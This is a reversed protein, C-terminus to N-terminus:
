QLYNLLNPSLIRTVAAVTYEQLNTLKQLRVVAQTIDAATTDNYEIQEALALDETRVQLRDLQELSVSQVGVVDLIHDYVRQLDGIRRDLAASQQDSSLNRTNLIDARLEKIVAFADSTGLFELQDTGTRILATTDLFVNSGDLSDILEQNPDFSVPVSTIGGDISLNGTATIDVSGSFGATIATTNVHIKEGLPGIVILDTDASTFNVESGGNLSITGFAGTGSTDTIQVTHTGTAGIVTDSGASSIGAAIGSGPGYTTLQHSVVLQRQGSATPIGTGAITGTHGVVVTEARNRAQFVTNGPLLAQRSVDGTLHLRTDDNTGGYVVNGPVSSIGEFPKTRSATGSFLYGSEDQSNAVSGLQELIGDLERALIDRESQDTIQHASLAIDRSRLLLNGAERLQVHAQELRSQVHKLSETHTNLRDLRDKQILSRRTAAPDDSPRQLRKGSSIQQQVQFLESTQRSLQTRSTSVAFQQTVRFSM